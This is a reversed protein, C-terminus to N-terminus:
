QRRTDLIPSSRKARAWDAQYQRRSDVERKLKYKEASVVRYQMARLFVLRRGDEAPNRSRPDPECLRAIARDVAEVTTGLITALLVPNLEVEGHRVHAIVYGWVAFVDSGSGVMSGTYMSEYMPGYGSM